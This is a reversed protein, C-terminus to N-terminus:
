CAFLRQAFDALTSLEHWEFVYKVMVLVVPPELSIVQQMNTSM